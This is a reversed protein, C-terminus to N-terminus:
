ALITKMCCCACTKAEDHVLIEDNCEFICTTEILLVSITCEVDVGTEEELGEGTMRLASTMRLEMTM